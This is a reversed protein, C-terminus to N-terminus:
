EIKMLFFRRIKETLPDLIELIYVGCAISSLEINGSEPLTTEYIKTGEITFLQAHGKIGKVQFHDTFPNPYIYEEEKRDVLKIHSFIEIGYEDVFKMRFYLAVVAPIDSSPITYENLGKDPIALTQFNIGDLSYEVFINRLTKTGDTLLWYLQYTDQYPLINFSILEIPLGISCPCTSAPPASLTAGVCNKFTTTNLVSNPAVVLTYPPTFAGGPAVTNGSTGSFLNGIATMKASGAMKSVDIPDDVSIFANNEVLVDADQGATVGLKEYPSSTYLNNVVHVQGFRVRPMREVAKPMWWNYQFTVKLHGADESANGDSHGILNSFSHPSSVGLADTIATYQFKSWTVTIYDAGHKIDLNGDEGDRFDCHDVWVRTADDITMCDNGNIDHAGPGQFIINRVIVNTCSKVNLWVRLTAGPLGIITKNSKVDIRDCGLCSSTGITGSIYVVAPSASELQTTLASLTTVTVPSNAGGGTTSGAYGAWGVVTCQDVQASIPDAFFSSVLAFLICNLFSVQIRTIQKRFLM